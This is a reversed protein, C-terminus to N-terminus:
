STHSRLQSVFSDQGDDAVRRNHLQLVHARLLANADEGLQLALVGGAANLVTDAELHDLLGFGVAFKAGGAGDQFGGAAVGADGQGHDAPEFPVFYRHHHRFVDADLPYLQQLGVASFNDGRVTGAAGVTGNLHGLVQHLFMRVVVDHHVLVAVAAVRPGVVLCGPRFYDAGKRFDVIALRAGPTLRDQLASFYAVRDPIHHWTNVILVVDVAEPLNPSDGQAVVGVVQDLGAEAARERVYDVMTPEIDVAFVTRAETQRALRVTFYGTGAGIDAVREGAAIDLADIVREPMQWADREPDDFTQAYREPDDFRHEMHRSQADHEQARHQEHPPQQAEVLGPGTLLVAGALYAAVMMSPRRSTRSM